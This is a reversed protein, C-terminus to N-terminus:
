HKNTNIIEKVRELELQAPKKNPLKNIILVKGEKSKANICFFLDKDQELYISEIRSIPICVKSKLGLFPFLIGKSLNGNEIFVGKSLNITFAFVVPLFLFTFVEKALENKIVNSIIYSIVGLAFVSITLWIPDFVKEEVLVKRKM